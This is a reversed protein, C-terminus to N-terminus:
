NISTQVQNNNYTVILEKTILPSSNYTYIVKTVRGNIDYDVYTINGTTGDPWIITATAIGNINETYFSITYSEALIWQKTRENIPTVPLPVSSGLIWAGAIGDWWNTNKSGSPAEWPTGTAVPPNANTGNVFWGEVDEMKRNAGPPGPPLITATASTAGGKVTKIQISAEITANRVHQAMDAVVKTGAIVSVKYSKAM